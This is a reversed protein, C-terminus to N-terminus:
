WFLQADRQWLSAHSTDKYIYIYIRMCTYMCVALWAPGQDNRGSTVPGNRLLIPLRWKPLKFQPLRSQQQGRPRGTDPCLHASKHGAASFACEDAMQRRGRAGGSLSVRGGQHLGIFNIACRTRRAIQEAAPWLWNEIHGFARQGYRAEDDLAM